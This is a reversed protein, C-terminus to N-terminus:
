GHAQRRLPFFEKITNIMDEIDFPKLFFGEAGGEKVRTVTNREEYATM